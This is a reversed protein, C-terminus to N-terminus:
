TGSGTPAADVAPQAHAAWEAAQFWSLAQHLWWMGAAWGVGVTSMDDLGAEHCCELFWDHTVGYDGDETVAKVVAAHVGDGGYSAIADRMYRQADRWYWIKASGDNRSVAAVKGFLYAPSGVAGDLWTIPDENHMRLVYEGLDGYVILVGPRAIVFFSYAWEGPRKCLWERDAKVTLEHRAFSEKAMEAISARTEAETSSLDDTM